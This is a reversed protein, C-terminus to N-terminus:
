DDIVVIMISSNYPAKFKKLITKGKLMERSNYETVTAITELCKYGTLSVGYKCIKVWRNM